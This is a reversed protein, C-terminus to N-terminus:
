SAKQLADRAPQTDHKTQDDTDPQTRETNAKLGTGDLFV